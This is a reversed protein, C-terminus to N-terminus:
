ARSAQPTRPRGRWPVPSTASPRWPPSSGARNLTLGSPACRLGPTQNGNNIQNSSNPNTQGFDIQGVPQDGRKGERKWRPGPMAVHPGHGGHGDFVDAIEGNDGMDVM